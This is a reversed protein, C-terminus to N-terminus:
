RREPVIRYSGNQQVFVRITGNLDTRYIQRNGSQYYRLASAHPHGYTNGGGVQIIVAEPNTQQIWAPTVGNRAGHHAAKLITVRPIQNRSLMYNIQETESDGSLLAKFSGREVITTVSRNNHPSHEINNPPQIIHIQTSGLSLTETRATRHPINKQEVRAITRDYTLTTHSFGNDIYLNVQFQDLVAPFGGIHDAHNHSAIAYNITRVGEKRLHDIIRGGPGTDILATQGESRILIADGQGVDFFILEMEGTLATSSTSQAPPTEPIREESQSEKRSPAVISPQTSEGRANALRRRDLEDLIRVIENRPPPESPARECGIFTLLLAFIFTIKM